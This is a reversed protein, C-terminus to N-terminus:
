YKIGQKILKRKVSQSDLCPTYSQVLNIKNKKEIKKKASFLQKKPTSNKEGSEDGFAALTSWNM